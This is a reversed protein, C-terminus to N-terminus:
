AQRPGPKGACPANKGSNRPPKTAAWTFPIPRFIDKLEKFVAAYFKWVEPKQPCVLEKSNGAVTRVKM